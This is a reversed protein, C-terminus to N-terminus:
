QTEMYIEREQIATEVAKDSVLVIFMTCTAIEAHIQTFADLSLGNLTIRAIFKGREPDSDLQWSNSDITRVEARKGNRNMDGYIVVMDPSEHVVSLSCIMKNPDEVTATIM